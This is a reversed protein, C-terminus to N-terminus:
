IEMICQEFLENSVTSKKKVKTKYTNITNVSYNLFRAIRESDTIGLRMLAFIRMETTLKGQAPHKRDSEDFLANFREVFDPFLTLFTTDFDAYMNKREASLTSEKLSYRLDDYQRAAVKHDVLKFIRELKAIYEGNSYFSKGIYEDKITNAEHLRANALELLRNREEITGRAERLKKMQRFIYCMAGALLLLMVCVIVTTAIMTNRQQAVARYKYQEVVPQIQGVEIKRQRSGYFNADELATQVYASARKVDGGHKMILQGLLNLATTEKTSSQLDCQASRAVYYMAREDEHKEIYEIAICSNAIAQMHLDVGAIGLLHKFSAICQDYFHNRMEKQGKTYWWKISNHPVLAMLSDSYLNGQRLYDSMFPEVHVFDASSYYLRAMLEYYNVRCAASAGAVSVHEIADFAEKYLGASLMCFALACQSDIEDERSGLKHALGIARTAYVYASDYRYSRYEEYLKICQRYRAETDRARWLQRRMRGIRQEKVRDYGAKCELQRDLRDLERSVGVPLAWSQGCVLPAVLVAWVLLLCRHLIWANIKM